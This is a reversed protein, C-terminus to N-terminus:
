QIEIIPRRKRRPREEEEEDEYQVEEESEEAPRGGVTELGEIEVGGEGDDDEFEREQAAAEANLKEREKTKEILKKASNFCLVNADHVSCPVTVVSRNFVGNTAAGCAFCKGTKAFRKVACASDFYHGCLTVVPNPGFPKRCILCAFPLDENDSDADDGGEGERAAQKAM